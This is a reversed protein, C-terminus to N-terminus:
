LTAGYRNRLYMVQDFHFVLGVYRHSLAKLPADEFAKPNWRRALEKVTSVDVIRYHLHAAVSPFDKLLFSRDVHVSNGALIGERPNPVWTKIFALLETEAQSLSMNSQRVRETLGSEGHTRQCWEGMASLVEDSQHVVLHFPPSATKLDGDTILCAVEIIV